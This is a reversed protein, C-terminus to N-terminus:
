GPLGPVVPLQFFEEDNQVPLQYLTDSFMIYNPGEYTVYEADTDCSSFSVSIVLLLYTYKLINKM